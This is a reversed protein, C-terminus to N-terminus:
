EAGEQTGSIPPLALVPKGRALTLGYGIANLILRLTLLGFGLPLFISLTWSALALGSSSQNGGLFEEWTVGAAMVACIAFAPIAIVTTIFEFVYRTKTGVYNHVIDVAVHSHVKLTHSAAVFFTGPMLYSSIVEYSWQLPANFLYRLTVDAVVLCMLCFLMAAGVLVLAGDIADVIRRLARYWHVEAALPPATM